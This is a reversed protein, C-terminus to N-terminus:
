ALTVRVPMRKIGHIFNSRLREASGALEISRLRPLLEEFTVRAQLRAVPAGLCYHPGGKGFSVHDNPDREIDFRLPDAFVTEDFNASIYWMVVKEGPGISRGGLEVERTTTRRFQYIPTSWRTMEETATELLDPNEQLRRLAEPREILALMGHSITHRTAEQGAIMLVAFFNQFEVDTLPRGGPEAALVQSLVDDGPNARREAALKAAYQFCEWGAQTGFPALRYGEDEQYDPDDQGLMRDTWDIMQATMEEPVGLYQCLWVVPLPKSIEAVFDFEGKPLVRDLTEKTMLRIAHEYSAVVRSTFGRAVLRRIRTHEPPDLDMMSRRAELQEDDMDELTSGRASSFVRFNKSVEVVDHYRVVSWCKEGEHWSVPDEARLRAFAEHPVREVYSDPDFIDVEAM